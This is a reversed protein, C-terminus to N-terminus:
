MRAAHSAGRAPRPNHQSENDLRSEFESRLGNMWRVLPWEGTSPVGVESGAFELSCTDLNGTVKLKYLTGDLQLM